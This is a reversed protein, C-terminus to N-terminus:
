LHILRGTFRIRVAGSHAQSLREQLHKVIEEAHIMDIEIDIVSLRRTNFYQDVDPKTDIHEVYLVVARSTDAPLKNANSM